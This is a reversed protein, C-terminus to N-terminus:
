YNARAGPPGQKLPLTAFPIPITTQQFWNAHPRTTAQATAHNPVLAAPNAAAALPYRESKSGNQGSPHQKPALTKPPPNLARQRSRNLGRCPPQYVLSQLANAFEAVTIPAAQGPPQVAGITAFPAGWCYNAAMEISKRMLVVRCHRGVM